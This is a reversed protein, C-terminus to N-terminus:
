LMKNRSTILKTSVSQGNVTAESFVGSTNYKCSVNYSEDNITFVFTEVTTTGLDETTYKGDITLSAQTETKVTASTYKYTIVVNDFDWSRVSGESGQVKDFDVSGSISSVSKLNISRDDYLRQLTEEIDGKTIDGAASFTKDGNENYLYNSSYYCDQYQDAFETYLEIMEGSKDKQCSTFSLVLLLSLLVFLVKKM